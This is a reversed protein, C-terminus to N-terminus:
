PEEALQLLGAMAHIRGVGRLLSLCPSAMDSAKGTPLAGIGLSRHRGACSRGGRLYAVGPLVIRSHQVFPLPQLRDYGLRQVGMGVPNRNKTLVRDM